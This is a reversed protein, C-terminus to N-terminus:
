HKQLKHTVYKCLKQWKNKYIYGVFYGIFLVIVFYIHIVGYNVKYMLLIYLLSVDLIYTFTILYKFIIHYKKIIRYNLLSTYYFFIGYAFSFIFSILQVKYDM